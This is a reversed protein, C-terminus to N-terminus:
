ASVRTDTFSRLEELTMTSLSDKLTWGSQIIGYVYMTGALYFTELEAASNIVLYQVVDFLGFGKIKVGGDTYTLADKALYMGLLNIMFNESLEFRLDNYTFKNAILYDSNTDILATVTNLADYMNGYGRIDQMAEDMNAPARAIRKLQTDVVSPFASVSPNGALNYAYVRHAHEPNFWDIIDYGNGYADVFDRSEKVNSDHIIVLM